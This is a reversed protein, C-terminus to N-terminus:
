AGQGCEAPRRGPAGERALVKLVLTAFACCVALGDKKMLRKDDVSHLCHVADVSKCLAYNWVTRCKRIPCAGAKVQVSM